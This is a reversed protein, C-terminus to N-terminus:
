RTAGPRRRPDTLAAVRPVEIRGRRLSVRGDDVLGQLARNATPRTTGALSALDEQTLPITAAGDVAFSEALRGLQKLVREEATLTHADLLQESLRRVQSALMETVVITVQPHRRQLENFAARRLEWTEVAGIAVAAATRRSDPDLLAQEGFFQGPTLITLTLTTGAPNVVQIAVHGKEILHVSDGLDGQHFLHEGGRYRRRIASAMVSRRDPPDLNRLIEWEMVVGPDPGVFVM